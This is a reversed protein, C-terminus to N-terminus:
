DWIESKNEFIIHPIQMDLIAYLIVRLIFM